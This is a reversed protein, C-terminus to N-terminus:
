MIRFNVYMDLLYRLQTIDEAKMRNMAIDFNNDGRLYNTYDMSQM